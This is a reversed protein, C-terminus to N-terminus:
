VTTSVLTSLRTIVDGADNAIDYFDNARQLKQKLVAPEEAYQEDLVKVIEVLHEASVGTDDIADQLDAPLPPNDLLAAFRKALELEADTTTLPDRTNEVHRLLEDDTLHSLSTTTTTSM